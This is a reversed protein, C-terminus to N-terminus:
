RETGNASNRVKASNIGYRSWEASNVSNRVTGERETGFGRGNVVHIGYRVSNMRNITLPETYLVNTRTM